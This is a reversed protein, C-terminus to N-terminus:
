AIGYMKITADFNGSTMSFQIANIASATNIYGAPFLDQAFNGQWYGQARAYFHKVYTTSSPNFLYLIGTTSEDAGNGGCNTIHQIATSQSLDHSAEYGMGATGDGEDHYADFFSSTIAIGYSSGGNTSAQFGLSEDDTAPNVDLYVFMYKDYTSDIGSTFSVSSAGSATQTQILIPGARLGSNITSLTGSGNSIFITNGGADKFTNLKISDGSVTISDGAAGLAVDTGTAPEINHAKLTSM